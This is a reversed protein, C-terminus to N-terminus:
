SDLEEEKRQIESGVQEMREQVERLSSLEEAADRFKREQREGLDVEEVLEAATEVSEEVAEVPEEFPEGERVSGLVEKEREDLEIDGHEAAYLLKKLGREMRSAASRAQRELEDKEDELEEIEEELEQMEERRTDRELEALDEEVGELESRPSEVDVRELEQDLDRIRDLLEKRDEELEELRSRQRLVTYDSDLFEEIDELRDEVSKVESFVQGAAEGAEKVVAEEKQSMTRMEEVLEKLDPHLDSVNRPPEFSEITRLRERAVNTTVDEVTDMEHEYAQLSRLESELQELSELAQDRLEGAREEAREIDGSREERFFKSAEDPEIEVEEAGFGPLLRKLM